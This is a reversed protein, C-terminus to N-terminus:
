LALVSVCEQCWLKPAYGESCEQVVAKWVSAGCGGSLTHM